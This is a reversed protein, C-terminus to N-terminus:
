SEEGFYKKREKDILATEEGTLSRNLCNMLTNLESQKGEDLYDDPDSPDYPTLIETIKEVLQEESIM